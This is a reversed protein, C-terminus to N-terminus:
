RRRKPEPRETEMELIKHWTALQPAHAGREWKSITDKGSVGLLAAFANQNLGLSVRVAVIRAPWGDPLAVRNYTERQRQGRAPNYTAKWAKFRDRAVRGDKLPLRGLRIANRITWESAGSEQRMETVSVTHGAQELRALLGPLPERQGNDWLSVAQRTIGLIRAVDGPTLLLSERFARFNM